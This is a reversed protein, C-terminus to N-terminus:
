SPNFRCTFVSYSQPQLDEFNNTPTVFTGSADSFDNFINLSTILGREMDYQMSYDNKNNEMDVFSIDSTSNVGNAAGAFIKLDNNNAYLTYNGKFFGESHTAGNGNYKGIAHSPAPLFADAALGVSDASTTIKFFNGEQNLKQPHKTM